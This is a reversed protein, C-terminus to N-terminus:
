SHRTFQYATLCVGTGISCAHVIRSLGQRAVLHTPLGTDYAAERYRFISDSTVNWNVLIAFTNIEEHLFWGLSIKVVEAFVIFRTLWPGTPPIVQSAFAGPFLRASVSMCGQAALFSLDHAVVGFLCSAATARLTSLQM